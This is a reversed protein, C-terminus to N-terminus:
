NHLNGKGGISPSLPLKLQLMSLKITAAGCHYNAFRKM